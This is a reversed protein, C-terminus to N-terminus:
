TNKKDFLMERDTLSTHLFLEPHSNGLEKLEERLSITASIPPPSASVSIHSGVAKILAVVTSSKINM